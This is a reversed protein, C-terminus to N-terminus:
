TVNRAKGTYTDAHTRTDEPYSPFTRENLGDDAFFSRIIAELEVKSALTSIAFPLRAAAAYMWASQEFAVLGLCRLSTSSLRRFGAFAISSHSVISQHLHSIAPPRVGSSNELVPVNQCKGQNQGQKKVNSM